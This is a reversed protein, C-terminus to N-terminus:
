SQESGAENPAVYKFRAVRDLIRKKALIKSQREGREILVAGFWMGAVFTLIVSLGSLFPPPNGVGSVIAACTCTITWFIPKNM